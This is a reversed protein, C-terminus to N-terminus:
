SEHKLRLNDFEQCLQQSKNPTAMDNLHEGWALAQFSYRKPKYSQKREQKQAARTQRAEANDIDMAKRGKFWGNLMSVWETFTKKGRPPKDVQHQLWEDLVNEVATIGHEAAIEQM